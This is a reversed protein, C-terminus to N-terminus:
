RWDCSAAQAQHVQEDEVLAQKNKDHATSDAINERHFYQKLMNSPISSPLPLSSFPLSIPGGTKIVSQRGTQAYV